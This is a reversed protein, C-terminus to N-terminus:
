RAAELRELRAALEALQGAQAGILQEQEAIRSRLSVIQKQQEKVAEVAVATMRDYKLSRAWVGGPEWEVLEPLVRGVDEAVFGIDHGGGQEPKWDFSVGELRSVKDLAGDIPRINEKWRRSSYTTWANARGQGAAGATNPLDLRFQPLATSALGVGVYSGDLRIADPASITLLLSNTASTGIFPMPDRPDVGFHVAKAGTEAPGGITLDHQYVITGAVNPDTGIGPGSVPDGFRLAKPQTVSGDGITLNRLHIIISGTGRDLSLNPDGVGGFFLRPTAEGPGGIYVDAHDLLLGPGM